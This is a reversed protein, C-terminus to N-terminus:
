LNEIAKGLNDRWTVFENNLKNLEIDVQTILASDDLLTDSRERWYVLVNNSSDIGLYLLALLQQALYNKDETELKGSVLDYYFKFRAGLQLGQVILSFALVKESPVGKITEFFKKLARLQTVHSADLEPKESDSVKAKHLQELAVIYNNSVSQLVALIQSSSVTDVLSVLDAFKEEANGESETIRLVNEHDIHNQMRYISNAIVVVHSLTAEENLIVEHNQLLYSMYEYTKQYIVSPLDMPDYMENSMAIATLTDELGELEFDKVIQVIDPFTNKFEESCCTDILSEIAYNM